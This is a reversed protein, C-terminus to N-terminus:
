GKPSNALMKHSVLEPIGVGGEGEGDRGRSRSFPFWESVLLRIKNRGTREKSKTMGDPSWRRLVQQRRTFRRIHSGPM